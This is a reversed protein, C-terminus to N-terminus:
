AVNAPASQAAHRCPWIDIRGSTVQTPLHPDHTRRCIRAVPPLMEVKTPPVRGAFGDALRGNHNDGWCAVDGDDVIVCCTNGDCSLDKAKGDLSRPQWIWEGVSDSWAVGRRRKALM